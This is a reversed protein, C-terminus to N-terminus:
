QTAGGTPSPAVHCDIVLPLPFPQGPGGGISISNTQSGDFSNSEFQNGTQTAQDVIGFEAEGTFSCHSVNSSNTQYFYVSAQINFSFSIDEIQVNSIYTSPPPHQLATESFIGWFFQAITGNRIIIHSRTPNAIIAIGGFANVGQMTFGGLDLIIIGATPSNITIAAALPAQSSDTLNSAFVYTGPATINFPFSTIQKAAQATLAGMILSLAATLLLKRPKM